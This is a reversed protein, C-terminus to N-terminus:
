RGGKLTDILNSIRVREMDALWDRVRGSRERMTAGLRKFRSDMYRTNYGARDLLFLAYNIQKETAM